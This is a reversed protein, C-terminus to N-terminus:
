LERFQQHGVLGAVPLCVIRELMKGRVNLDPHKLKRQGSLEIDCSAWGRCCGETRLVYNLVYPSKHEGELASSAEWARLKVEAM